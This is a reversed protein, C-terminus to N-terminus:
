NGCLLSMQATGRCRRHEYVSICESVNIKMKKFNFDKVTHCREPNLLGKLSFFFYNVTACHFILENSYINFVNRYNKRLVLELNLLWDVKLRYVKM